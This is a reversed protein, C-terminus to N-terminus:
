IAFAPTKYIAANLAVLNMPRFALVFGTVIFFFAPSQMGLASLLSCVNIVRPTSGVM